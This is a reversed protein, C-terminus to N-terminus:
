NKYLSKKILSVIEEAKDEDYNRNESVADSFNDAQLYHDYPKVWRSDVSLECVVKGDVFTANHIGYDYTSFPEGEEPVVFFADLDSENNCSVRLYSKVGKIEFGYNEISCAGNALKSVKDNLERIEQKNLSNPTPSVAKPKSSDFLNNIKTQMAEATNPNAVDSKLGSNQPNHIRCPENAPKRCTSM